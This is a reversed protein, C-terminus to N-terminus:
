NFALSALMFIGLLVLFKIFRNKLFPFIRRWFETMPPFLLLGVLSYCFIVHWIQDGDLVMFSATLFLLSFIWKIIILFVSEKTKSVEEM